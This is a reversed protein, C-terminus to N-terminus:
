SQIKGGLVGMIYAIEASHEQADDEAVERMVQETAFRLDYCGGNIHRCEPKGECPGIATVKEYRSKGNVKGRYMKDGIVVEAAPITIVQLAM